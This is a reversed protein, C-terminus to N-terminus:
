QIARKAQVFYAAYIIDRNSKDTDFHVVNVTNKLQIFRIVKPLYPQKEDDFAKRLIWKEM